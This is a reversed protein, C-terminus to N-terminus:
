KEGGVIEAVEEMGLKKSMFKRMQMIARTGMHASLGVIAVSTIQEIGYSECIAFSMLGVFVSSIAECVLSVIMFFLGWWTFEKMRFLKMKEIFSVFGALMSIGIVWEYTAIPYNTPDKLPM